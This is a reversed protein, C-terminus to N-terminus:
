YVGPPAPAVLWAANAFLCAVAIPGVGGPVPTFVSATEACRPDMDGVLQGGSESTGADILIAGAKVMDPTILGAHGAGSVVLDADKLVVPLASESERNVVTVTVSKARLWSAVPNGVLWGDGVVAARLGAPAVNAASLIYAVAGVVPPMCAHAVDAVFAGRASAGLVDADKGQPIADLVRKADLSPPLPLQVIVADETANEIRAILEEETVTDTFREVVLTMGADAARATKIRLYSETAANPAVTIALVVPTRGLSKVQERAEALIEGAMRKGDVIM